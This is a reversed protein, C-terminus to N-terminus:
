HRIGLKELFDDCVTYETGRDTRLTKIKYESQKEVYAKFSKFTDCAESKQKLFYVWTKRSFDDIFTIFYRNNGNSSAELPGCLDSHILELPKRARWSNGTPFSERYQKGMVCTECIKNSFNVCPLRLVM